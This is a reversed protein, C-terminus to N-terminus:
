GGGAVQRMDLQVSVPCNLSTSVPCYKELKEKLGLAEAKALSEADEWAVDIRVDVGSFRLGESTKEVTGGSRSAYSSLSLEFREVFYLFTSMLCSEVSAVLLEEPCWTGEPGGFDPPTAVQLLPNDSASLNARKGEQWKLETQFTAM